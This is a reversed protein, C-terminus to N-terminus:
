KKKKTTRKKPRTILGGKARGGAVGSYGGYSGGTTIETGGYKDEDTNKNTTSDRICM